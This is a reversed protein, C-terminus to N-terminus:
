QFLAYEYILLDYLGLRMKTWGFNNDGADNSIKIAIYLDESLPQNFCRQWQFYSVYYTTDASEHDKYGGAYSRAIFLYKGSFWNSEPKLTDGKQYGQLHTVDNISVISDSQTCDTRQVTQFWIPVVSTDVNFSESYYLTDKANFIKFFAGEHLSEIFHSTAYGLGLSGNIIVTFQFDPTGDQDLDVVETQEDYPSSSVILTNLKQISAIKPDGITLISEPGSEHNECSAFLFACLISLTIGLNLFHKSIM